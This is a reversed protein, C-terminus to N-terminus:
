PLTRVQFLQMNMNVSSGVVCTVSTIQVYNYTGQEMNRENYTLSGVLYM